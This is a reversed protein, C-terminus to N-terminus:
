FKLLTMKQLKIYESNRMPGIDFDSTPRASPRFSIYVMEIRKRFFEQLYAKLFKRARLCM